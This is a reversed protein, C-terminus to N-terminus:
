RGKRDKKGQLEESSASLQWAGVVTQKQKEGKRGGVKVFRRLVRKKFLVEYKGFEIQMSNATEQETVWGHSGSFDRERQFRGSSRKRQELVQKNGEAREGGLNRLDGTGTNIVVRSDPISLHRGRGAHRSNSDRCWACLM